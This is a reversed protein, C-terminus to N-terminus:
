NCAECKSGAGRGGFSSGSEGPASLLQGSGEVVVVELTVRQQDIEFGQHRMSHQQTLFPLGAPYPKYFITDM